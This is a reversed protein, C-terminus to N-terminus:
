RATGREGVPAIGSVLGETMRIARDLRDPITSTLPHNPVCSWLPPTSSYRKDIDAVSTLDLNDWLERDDESEAM